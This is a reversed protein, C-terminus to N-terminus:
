FEGVEIYKAWAEFLTEPFSGRKLHPESLAYLERTGIPKMMPKSTVSRIFQDVDIIFNRSCLSLLIGFAAPSLRCYKDKEPINGAAWPFDIVIVETSQEQPIEIPIHGGFSFYAFFHNIKSVRIQESEDNEFTPSYIEIEIGQISKIILVQGESEESKILDILENKSEIDSATWIGDLPETSSLLSHVQRLAFNWYEKSIDENMKNLGSGSALYSFQKSIEQFSEKIFNRVHERINRKTLPSLDTNETLKGLAIDASSYGKNLLDHVQVRNLPATSKRNKFLLPIAKETCGFRSRHVFRVANFTSSAPLIKEDSARILSVLFLIKWVLNESFSEFNFVSAGTTQGSSHYLKQIEGIVKRLSSGSVWALFAVFLRLCSDHPAEEYRGHESQVPQHRLTWDMFSYIVEHVQPVNQKTVANINLLFFTVRSILDARNDAPNWDMAHRFEPLRALYQRHVEPQFFLPLIALEFPLHIKNCKQIWFSNLSLLSARLRTVTGIETGTDITSCGLPTILYEGTPTKRILDYTPLSASEIVNRVAIILNREKEKKRENELLEEEQSVDIDCNESYYLTEFFFRTIVENDSCGVKGLFGVTNESGGLFRLGDLVSRTFPYSFEEVSTNTPKSIVKNSDHSHQCDDEQLIQSQRRLKSLTALVRADSRYFLQSHVGVNKVYFSDIVSEFSKEEEPDLYWYVHANRGTESQGLRGARGSMNTFDCRSLLISKPKGTQIREGEPFLVNLLAVDTVKLNVGYSLTETAFIIESRSDKPLNSGLYEEFSARVKQAVDANHIFIGHEACRKLDQNFDTLEIESIINTATEIGADNPTITTLNVSDYSFKNSIFNKIFRAVELIEFKSSMFILLRKGTLNNRMWQGIFEKYYERRIRKTDFGKDDPLQSLSSRFDRFNKSIVEYECSSITLSVDNDFTKINFIAPEKSNTIGPLICCHTIPKARSSDNLILPSIDELLDHDRFTLFRDLAIGPNETTIIILRLPNDEVVSLMRREKEMKIKSLLCELVSGRHLDEIMHFEDIIMLNLKSFLDESASLIVNAKEYVTSAINFEGRVLAGDSANDDGTSVIVPNFDPNKLNPSPFTKGWAKAREQSLAKTPAIYLIRARAFENPRSIGFLHEALTTKGSSTGGSIVLDKFDHNIFENRRDWFMKQLNTLTFKFTSQINSENILRRHYATNKHWCWKSLDEIKESWLAVTKNELDPTLPTSIDVTHETDMSLFSNLKRFIDNAVKNWTPWKQRILTSLEQANNFVNNYNESSTILIIKLTETIEEETQEDVPVTIALRATDQDGIIQKLEHFFGSSESIITPTGFTCSEIYTLGFNEYWSNLLVFSCQEMRKKLESCDFSSVDEFPLELIHAKWTNVLSNKEHELVGEAGRKGVAYFKVDSTILNKILKSERAANWAKASLRIQKISDSVPDLRGFSMANFYETKTAKSAIEPLGPVIYDILVENAPSLSKLYDVSFSGVALAMDSEQLMEAQFRAKRDLESDSKKKRKDSRGYASHFFTVVKAKPLYERIIPLIPKCFIDHLFVFDPEFKHQLKMKLIVANAQTETWEGIREASIQEIIGEEPTITIFGLKTKDKQLAKNNFQLCVCVEADIDKSSFATVMEKNFVDIGGTSTGWISSFTVIKM